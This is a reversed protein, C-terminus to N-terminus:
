AVDTMEFFLGFQFRGPNEPWVRANDLSNLNEKSPQNTFIERDELGSEVERGPV